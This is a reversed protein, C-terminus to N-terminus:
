LFILRECFIYYLRNTKIDIKHHCIPYNENILIRCIAYLLSLQACHKIYIENCM